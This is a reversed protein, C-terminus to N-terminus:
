TGLYLASYSLGVRQSHRCVGHNNSFRGSGRSLILLLKRSLLLTCALNGAPNGKWDIVSTYLVSSYMLSRPSSRVATAICLSCLTGSRTSPNCGTILCLVGEPFIILTVVQRSEKYQRQLQCAGRCSLCLLMVATCAVRRWLLLLMERDMAHPSSAPAPTVDSTTATVAQHKGAHCAPSKSSVQEM